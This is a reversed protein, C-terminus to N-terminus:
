EVVEWEDSGTNGLITDMLLDYQAKRPNTGAGQIAEFYPLLEGVAESSSTPDLFVSLPDSGTIRSYSALETPSFAAGTFELRVTNRLTDMARAIESARSEEEGSARIKAWTSVIPNTSAIQSALKLDEPSAQKITEIASIAGRAKVSEQKQASTPDQSELRTLLQNLTLGGFNPESSEKNAKMQDLAFQRERLDQQQGFQYESLLDQYLQRASQAQGAARQANAQYAGTGANIIDAISGRRTGLVNALSLMPLSKNSTYQSVLAERQFPNFINQFKERGTSPAALYESQATDLPDVIDKNYNYAENLKEKLAGEINYTGAALDNAQSTATQAATRAQTVDDMTAM